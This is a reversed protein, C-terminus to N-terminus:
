NRDELGRFVVSEALFGPVAAKVMGKPWTIEAVQIM